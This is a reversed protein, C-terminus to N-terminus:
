QLHHVQRADHMLNEVNQLWQCANRAHSQGELTSFDDGRHSISGQNTACDEVQHTIGYFITLCIAFDPDRTEMPFTFNYDTHMIQATRQFNFLSRMEEFGEITCGVYFGAFSAPPQSQCKDFSNRLFVPSRHFGLRTVITNCKLNMERCPRVPRERCPLRCSHRSASRSPM